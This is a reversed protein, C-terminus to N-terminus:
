VVFAILDIVDSGQRGSKDYIITKLECPGFIKEDWVWSYPTENTLFCLTNEIYFEVREIGAEKDKAEVQVMVLGLVVTNEPLPLKVRNLLYLYNEEPQIIRVTPDTKDINISIVKEQEINNANDMTYYSLTHKGQLGINIPKCYRYWVGNDIRYKIYKIGSIEDKADLGVTVNEIYWNNAGKEGIIKMSTVPPQTDVILTCNDTDNAGDNDTVTLSVNYTGDDCTCNINKGYYRQNENVVWTYNSIEGDRDYSQSANLHLTNQNVYRDPGCNAVPPVNIITITKVTTNIIGNNDIVTLSVQFTGNDSYNHNPHQLTSSNEDGFYWIWAVIWGDSDSSNDQFQVVDMDTPNNPSYVFDANPPHSTDQSTNAHTNEFIPGHVGFIILCLILVVFNKKLTM